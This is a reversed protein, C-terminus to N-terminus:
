GDFVVVVGETRSAFDMPRPDSRDHERSPIPVANWTLRGDSTLRLGGTEYTYHVFGGYQADIMDITTTASTRTILGSQVHPYRCRFPQEGETTQCAEDSPLQPSRYEWTAGGDTTTYWARWQASGGHQGICVAWDSMLGYFAFRSGAHHQHCPSQITQEVWSTGGDTTRFMTWSLAYWGDSATIVLGEHATQFHLHAIPHAAPFKGRIGHREATTPQICRIM